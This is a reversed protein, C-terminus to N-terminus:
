RNSFSKLTEIDVIKSGTTIYKGNTKIGLKYEFPVRIDEIWKPNEVSSIDILTLRDHLLIYLISEEIGIINGRIERKDYIHKLRMKGDQETFIHIKKDGIVFLYDQYAWLSDITLLGSDFEYQYIEKKTDITFFKIIKTKDKDLSIDYFYTVRDTSFLNQSNSKGIAVRNFNGSLISYIIFPENVLFPKKQNKINIEYSWDSLSGVRVEKESLNVYVVHTDEQYPTYPLKLCSIREKTDLDYICFEGSGLMDATYISSGVIEVANAQFSEIIYASFLKERYNEDGARILEVIQGYTDNYRLTHYLANKDETPDFIIIDQADVDYDCDLSEKLLIKAYRNLKEELRDYGLSEVYTYLMESLPTVRIKNMANKVWIGKTLLRLKGRNQTSNNDVIGSDYIDIDMGDSVEYLYFSHDELLESKLEFNGIQNFGGTSKTRSTAILERDGNPNLKFIKVTADSLRGMQAKGIKGGEKIHITINQTTSGFENNATVTLRCLKPNDLTSILTLRGNSNLKFKKSNDGSLILPPIITGGGSDISLKGITSGVSLSVSIDEEFAKIKPKRSGNSNDTNLLLHIKAEHKAVPIIGMKRIELYLEEITLEDLRHIAIKDKIETSINIHDSSNKDDLSQLLIAIKLVEENNFDGDFSPVLDQPYIKQNDTITDITGLELSGLSLTVPSYICTLVGHKTTSNDIVTKTVGQREGCRYDVGNTPSDIFYLRKEERAEHEAGGCATFLLICFALLLTKCM